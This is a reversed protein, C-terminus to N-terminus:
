PRLAGSSAPGEGVVLSRIRRGIVDPSLKARIAIAAAQGLGVRFEADAAVRRMARVAQGHDPEAWWQGHHALYEGTGVARMGYGILLSNSDDMFDMNGSFATGVVAKGKSMCEALNLGFGESRHLSVYVDVASQLAHVEDPAYM